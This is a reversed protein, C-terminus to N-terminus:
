ACPAANAAPRITKTNKTALNAMAKGPGGASAAPIGKPYLTAM